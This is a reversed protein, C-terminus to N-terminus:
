RHYKTFVVFVTSSRNFLVAQCAGLVVATHELLMVGGGQVTVTGFVACVCVCM